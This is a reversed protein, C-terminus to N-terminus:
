PSLIFTEALKIAEDPSLDSELRYTVNDNTWILVPGDVVRRFGEIPEMYQDYLDLQRTGSVWYAAQGNVSVPESYSQPGIKTLIMNQDIVHLLLPRDVWILTVMQGVGDHLYVATPPGLEDPIALSFNAQAQAEALTTRGPLNPLNSLPVATASPTPATTDILISVSGISFWERLTARVPPVLLLGLVLLIAVMVAALRPTLRRHTISPSVSRDPQPPYPFERATEALWQEFGNQSNESM